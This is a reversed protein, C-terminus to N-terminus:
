AISLDGGAREGHDAVVVDPLSDGPGKGPCRESATRRRLWPTNVMTLSGIAATFAAAIHWSTARLTCM